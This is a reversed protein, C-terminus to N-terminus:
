FRQSIAVKFYRGSESYLETLSSVNKVELADYYTKDFLNYVGAQLTMGKLQEPQWWGTLNFIGYGPPKSSAESKDSVAGAAILSLDTGWTDKEYGIGVIAKLPPVSALLEDTDLDTGRAYFLSGHLNIGNAFKKHGELQVGSIRVNARNIYEQTGYSYGTTAIFDSTDIFNKYRTSFASIRGGFDDDGLNAGGEFGWSSEPKLDPNGISRYLPANDYDVYLQYANPAKYATVFQAYLEVDPTVDWAARLKPSFHSGSQGDPMDGEFSATEQPDQRYWDFRVGPTLSFASDGFGIKDEVYAGFKYSNVDPAYNQNTHYYACGYSYSTACNDVGALYYSSQAFQFDSGFTLEHNLAGTRFSSNAYATYGLDREDSEMIRDYQGIPASLRYALTGEDRQSHQWYLTAFASDILSDDSDAEYKYDLSVRDRSKDQKYDYDSYTTGYSTYSKFDKSSNYGYHEATLGVTHGGELDQRVKFLFNRQYYDVPDAITRTGRTGGVDGNSETEHGLKYSSQFLVSTDRIKAAVAGSTTFSHDSGDFGLKVLGGYSKGDSILDDPELTHLLLAGGLAGSGARSSDASHLVDISSLSTFDYTDAGGGFSYVNDFFYPVPIGDTLTLVRDAELGRINVSKSADNYTVSPDVTNGFDKLDDVQKKQLTEATTQTALPSDSISGEQVHRSGKVVIKQLATDDTTDSTATGTSAANSAQQALTLHPTSVVFLATCALLVSRSRRFTM